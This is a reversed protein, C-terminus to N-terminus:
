KLEVPEQQVPKKTTYVYGHEEMFLKADQQSKVFYDHIDIASESLRKQVREKEKLIESEIM